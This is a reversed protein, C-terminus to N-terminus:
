SWVAGVVAATGTDRCAEAIPALRPDDASVALGAPDAAVLDPEYGCLFKEPFAVLHAGHAAAERVAAAVTAVNRVVDGPVPGAQAAAIRVAARPQQPRSPERM